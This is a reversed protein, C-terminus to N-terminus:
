GVATRHLVTQATIGPDTRWKRQRRQQHRLEGRRWRPMLDDRDLGAKRRGRDTSRPVWRGVGYGRVRVIETADASRHEGRPVSRTVACGGHERHPTLLCGEYDRAYTWSAPYAGFGPGGRSDHVKRHVVPMHEVAPLVGALNHGTGRCTCDRRLIALWPDPEMGFESCSEVVRKTGGDCEPCESAQVKAGPAWPCRGDLTALLRKATRAISDGNAFGPHVGPKRTRGRGKCASCRKGSNFCDSVHWGDRYGLSEMAEASLECDPMPIVGNGDCAKCREWGYESALLGPWGGRPQGDVCLPCRIAQGVSLIHANALGDAPEGQPGSWPGVSTVGRGDLNAVTHTGACASCQGFAGRDHNEPEMGRARTWDVFVVREMALREGEAVLRECYARVVHVDFTFTGDLILLSRGSRIAERVVPGSAAFEREAASGVQCLAVLRASQERWRQMAMVHSRRAQSVQVEDLGAM